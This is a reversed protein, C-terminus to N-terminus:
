YLQRWVAFMPLLGDNWALCHPFSFFVANANGKPFRRLNKELMHYSAPVWSLRGQKEDSSAAPLSCYTSYLHSEVCSHNLPQSFWGLIDSGGSQKNEVVTKGPMAALVVAEHHQSSMSVDITKYLLLVTYHELVTSWLEQFHPNQLFSFSRYSPGQVGGISLYKWWWWWWWWCV